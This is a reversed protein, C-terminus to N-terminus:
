ETFRGLSGGSPEDEGLGRKRQQKTNSAALGLVRFYLHACAPDGYISHALSSSGSDSPMEPLLVRAM